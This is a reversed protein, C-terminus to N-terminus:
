LWSGDLYQLLSTSAPCYKYINFHSLSISSPSTFVPAFTFICNWFISFFTWTLYHSKGLISSYITFVWKPQLHLLTLYAMELLRFKSNAWRLSPKKFHREENMIGISRTGLHKLLPGQVIYNLIRKLTFAHDIWLAKDLKFNDLSPKGKNKRRSGLKEAWHCRFSFAPLIILLCNETFM